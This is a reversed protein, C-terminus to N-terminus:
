VMTHAAAILTFALVVSITKKNKSRFPFLLLAIIVLLWAVRKLRKETRAAAFPNGHRARYAEIGHLNSENM